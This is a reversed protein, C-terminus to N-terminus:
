KRIFDSVFFEGKVLIKFEQGSLRSRSRMSRAPAPSTSRANPRSPNCGRTGLNYKPVFITALSLKAPLQTGLGLKPVLFSTLEIKLEPIKEKDIYSLHIHFM